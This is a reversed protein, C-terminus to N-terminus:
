TQILNAMELLDKFVFNPKVDCIDEDGTRYKGTMVLGGLLGAEQAGAPVRYDYKFINLIKWSVHVWTGIVDDRM